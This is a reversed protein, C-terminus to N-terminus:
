VLTKVGFSLVTYELLVLWDFDLLITEEVQSLGLLNCIRVAKRRAIIVDACIPQRSEVLAM